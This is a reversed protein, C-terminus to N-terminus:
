KGLHVFGSSAAPFQTAFNAAFDIDQETRLAVDLSPSTDLSACPHANKARDAAPHGDNYHGPALFLNALDDGTQFTVATPRRLSCASCQKLGTHTGTRASQRSAHADSPRPLAGPTKFYLSGYVIISRHNGTTPFNVQSHSIERVRFPGPAEPRSNYATHPAIVKAIM